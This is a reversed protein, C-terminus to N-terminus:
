IVQHHLKCSHALVKCTIMIMSKCSEFPRILLTKFYIQDINESGVIKEIDGNNWVQISEYETLTLGTRPVSDNISCLDAALAPPSTIHHVLVLDASHQRQRVTAMLLFYYQHPTILPSRIILWYDAWHTCQITAAVNYKNNQRM